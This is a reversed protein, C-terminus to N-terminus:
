LQILWVFKGENYDRASIFMLEKGMVSKDPAFKLTIEPTEMIPFFVIQGPRYPKPLFNIIELLKSVPVNM